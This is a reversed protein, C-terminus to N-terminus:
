AGGKPVHHFIKSMVQWRGDVRLFTLWDTFAKDAISCDLTARATDPGLFELAVIRDTRVEGRSAPSPRADVVPFYEAMDRVLLSGGTASAYVARPHFVRALRTTDSHYLGDFYDGIVSQLAAIDGGGSDHQGPASM